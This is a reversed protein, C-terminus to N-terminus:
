PSGAIILGAALVGVQSAYIADFQSIPLPNEGLGVEITYGPRDFQQIFWDKYGAHGSEYPTEELAYGSLTSFVEGIERSKAPLYDLYQWYIVEGQSHYSLTLSFDRSLTYEYFARSEPEALPASGVYDRPGLLRVGESFKIEKAKEWGAPYQLNLDVGRGNAKWGSPFPIHPYHEALYSAYEFDAGSDRAGTAIDVGDPNVMPVLHLTSAAYLAAADLGGIEGGEVCSRAYEELFKLLVPATIWENGHHAATYGVEIAGEGFCLVPLDCGAVSQGISERRISPYRALLGQLVYRLALSTFRIETPVVSFGLPIILRRALLLGEQGVGPNAAEIATVTTRFRTALLELTDGAEATRVVYGVLFPGLARWDAATVGPASPMGRGARFLGLAAETRPGLVGDIAGPAYGARMLCLQILDIDPHRAGSLFERM